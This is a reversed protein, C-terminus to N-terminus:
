PRGPTCMAHLTQATVAQVALDESGKAATLQLVSSDAMCTSVVAYHRGSSALVQHGAQHRAQECDSRAKTAGDVISRPVELHRGKRLLQKLCILRGRRSPHATRRDHVLM